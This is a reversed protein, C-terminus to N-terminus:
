EVNLKLWLDSNETVNGVNLTKKVRINLDVTSRLFRGSCVM